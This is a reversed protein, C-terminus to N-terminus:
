TSLSGELWQRTISYHSTHRICRGDRLVLAQPFQHLVGIWQSIGRAASRAGLVDVQALRVGDPSIEAFAKWNEEVTLSIGCTPSYKFLIGLTGSNDDLFAKMEVETAIELVNGMECGM